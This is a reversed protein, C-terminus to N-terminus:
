HILNQLQHADTALVQGYPKPPFAPKNQPTLKEAGDIVKCHQAPTCTARPWPTKRQDSRWCLLSKVKVSSAKIPMVQRIFFRETWTGYVARGIPTDPRSQATLHSSTIDYWPKSTLVKDNESGRMVQFREFIRHGIEVM